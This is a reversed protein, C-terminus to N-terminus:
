IKQLECQVNRNIFFSFFFKMEILYSWYFPCWIWLFEERSLAFFFTFFHRIIIPLIEFFPLSIFKLNWFNDDFKLFTTAAEYWQSVDDYNMWKTISLKCCDSEKDVYFIFNLLVQLTLNFHFCDLRCLINFNFHTLSLDLLQFNNETRLKSTIRDMECHLHTKQLCWSSSTEVDCVARCVPLPLTKSATHFINRRSM